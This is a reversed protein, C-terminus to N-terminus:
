NKQLVLALMKYKEPYVDAQTAAFAPLANEFFDTVVEKILTSDIGLHILGGEM